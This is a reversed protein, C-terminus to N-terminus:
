CCKCPSQRTTIPINITLYLGHKTLTFSFHSNSTFTVVTVVLSLDSWLLSSKRSEYWWCSEAQMMVKILDSRWESFAHKSMCTTVKESLSLDATDRESNYRNFVLCTDSNRCGANVRDYDPCQANSAKHLTKQICWLVGLGVNIM